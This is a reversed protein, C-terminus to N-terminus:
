QLAQILRGTHMAERQLVSATTERAEYWQKTVARALMGAAVAAIVPHGSILAIKTKALLFATGSAAAVGPTSLATSRVAAETAAAVTKSGKYVLFANVMGHICAVTLTGGFWENFLHSLQDPGVNNFGDTVISTANGDSLPISYVNVGSLEPYLAAKARVAEVIDENVAFNIHGVTNGGDHIIGTDVKQQVERMMKVAHDASQYIKVQVYETVGHAHPIAVDWAEQNTAHALYARGGAEEKFVLEGIQGKIQSVVGDVSHDGRAIMEQLYARIEDYSDLSDGRRAIFAQLLEPSIQDLLGDGINADAVLVAILAEMGLTDDTKHMQRESNWRDLVDEIRSPQAGSSDFEACFQDANM